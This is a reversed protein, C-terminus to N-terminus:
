AEVDIVCAWRFQSNEFELDAVKAAEHRSNAYGLPNAVVRCRGVRYDFSDHVHGHCWVDAQQLLPTLDSAFAANTALTHPSLFRRHVSLPHPAHHTIVITKGQFPAALERELWARSIEHDGLAHAATFRGQQTSIASHDRLRTEAHKMLQKQTLGACYRYDTWMTTGLFRVRSLLDRRPGWWHGFRSLDAADNDLFVVSTGRAAKHLQARTSEWGHGYFEHNGAVYLVPVPWNAFLEIARTGSAVDGALVLIDADAAPAVLRESSFDRQLMELHLDSALQMRFITAKNVTMCPLMDHM